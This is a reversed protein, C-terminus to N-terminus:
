RISFHGPLALILDHLGDLFLTGLLDLLAWGDLFDTLLLALFLL